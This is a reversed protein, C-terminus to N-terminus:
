AKSALSGVAPGRCLPTSQCVLKMSGAFPMVGTGEWSTSFLPTPGIYPMVAVGTM